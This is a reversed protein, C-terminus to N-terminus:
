SFVERTRRWTRREDQEALRAEVIRVVRDDLEHELWSTLEARLRREVDAHPPRVEDHVPTREQGAPPLWRRVVTTGQASAPVAPAAAGPAPRGTTTTPAAAPAASPATVPVRRVVTRPPLVTMRRVPGAAAAALAPAPAPTRAAAPAPLAAPSTGPSWATGSSATGSWATGSWATGSSATRAAAPVAPGGPRSPRGGTGYANVAPAAPGHSGPAPRGASRGARAVAPLTPASVAARLAGGTAAARVGVPQVARALEGAGRLAAVAPTRTAPGPVTALSRRVPTTTPVTSSPAGESPAAPPTLPASTRASTSPVAATPASTGPGTTARGSTSPATAGGPTGPAGTTPATAPAAHRTASAVPPVPSSASTGRAATAAATVAPAASTTSSAAGRAAAVAGAAPAVSRRVTSPQVDAHPGAVARVQTAPMVGPAVPGVAATGARGTTRGAVVTGAAARALHTAVGGHRGVPLAPGATGLSTARRVFPRRHGSGPLAGAGRWAPAAAAVGHGAARPASALSAADAGTLGRPGTAARAGVAGATLTAPGSATPADVAARLSSSPTTVPAGPAVADSRHASTAVAAPSPRSVPSSTRPAASSTRPTGPSTAHVAPSTVSAAPSTVSAAPRAWRRVALAPARGPAGVVPVAARVALDRSGRLALSARRVPGRLATVATPLGTAARPASAELARGPAVRVAHERGAAGSARAADSSRVTPAAAPVAASAAARRRLAAGAQLRRRVLAGGPGPRASSAPASGPVAMAPASGPATPRTPAAAGPAPRGPSPQQPATTPGPRGRATRRRPAVDSPTTMTGVARVADPLRMPVVRPALRAQVAGPRHGREDPLRDASRPLGRPRDRHAAVVVADQAARARREAALEGSWWRPPRVTDAVRVQALVPAPGALARRVAVPRGSGAAFRAAASALSGIAAPRPRSVPGPRRWRQAVAAGLPTAPARGAAAEVARTAGDAARGTM